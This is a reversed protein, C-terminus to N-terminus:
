EGEYLLPTGDANILVTFEGKTSVTYMVKTENDYVVDFSYHLNSSEIKTFRSSINDDHLKSASNPVNTAFYILLVCLIIAIVVLPIVFILKVVRYFDDDSFDEANFINKILKM